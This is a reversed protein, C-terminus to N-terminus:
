TWQDQLMTGNKALDVFKVVFGCIARRAGFPNLLVLYPPINLWFFCLNVEESDDCACLLFIVVLEFM